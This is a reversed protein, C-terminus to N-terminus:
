WSLPVPRVENQRKYSSASRDLPRQPLPSDATTHMTSPCVALRVAGLAANVSHAYRDTGVPWSMGAPRVGVESLANSWVSFELSLRVPRGGIWLVGPVGYLQLQNASRAGPESALWFRPTLRVFRPFWRIPHLGHHWEAVVDELDRPHIDLQRSIHVSSFM